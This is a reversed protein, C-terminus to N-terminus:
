PKGPEPGGHGHGPEHTSPKGESNGDPSHPPTEGPHDQPETLSEPALQTKPAPPPEAAIQTNPGIPPPETALQTKPAASVPGADPPIVAPPAPPPAPPTPPPTPRFTPAEVMTRPPAEPAPKVATAPVAGTQAARPYPEEFEEEELHVEDLETDDVKKRMLLYIITSATWFYSYGFGVVMLFILYIWFSVMYVGIWEYWEIQNENSLALTQGVTGTPYVVDVTRANPNKYLMLDRWGFSTPARVFLYDPARGQSVFPAQSVGWKGLYVTLSGMFGVFFVLVAGYALAVFAYWVYNWPAQYVYSYSRSIADFSDSGETSITSYMLPWGVLGVLVVAMILGVLLVLPWFLGAVFIDGILPIWEFWGFVILFVTLVVIFLLPFLPASLFSKFRSTAFRVAETMGVKENPRALQVAAMRTIAGGFVAWTGLTTLIILFLYVRNWGGSSPDFLYAIPRLFKVLPEVMVPLQDSAFWGLFEGRQWPVHRLGEEGESTLNGTVLLYPNPGRDEFWPWSRLMGAPKYRPKFLALAKRTIEADGRKQTALDREIDSLTERGQLEDVLRKAPIASLKLDITVDKVQATFHKLDVRIDQATLGEGKLKELDTPIKEGEKLPLKFPLTYEVPEGIELWYTSWDPAGKLTVKRTRKDAIAADIRRKEAAIKRYEAPSGAVDAVDIKAVEEAEKISSPVPGAMKYRLNWRNREQKFDNWRAQETAETGEDKWQPPRDSGFTAFFLASLLWWCFSMVLIGAAALLLKKPDLAVKFATFLKMWSPQERPHDRRVGVQEEAM